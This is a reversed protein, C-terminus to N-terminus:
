SLAYMNGPLTRIRGSLELEFLLNTLQAIDQGTQKALVNIHLPSQARLCAVLRATEPSDDFALEAQTAQPASDTQWGLAEILDAASSVLGAHQHRILENCGVSYIDTARGPFAFVERNYSLAVGATVLSGGKRASEVVLTADSLGAIIRNRKLFNPRDPNTQSPFDTLLGGQSLMEIATQRHAPPYLRDLGHALVGVTPLHNRLASRHACVDIGYALGSVILTDPFAESIGEMLQAVADQGYRTAHRTGVVSLIHRANLDATGKYYLLLPADPCERLRFPYAEEEIYLCQIQNKEIFALEQEARRMVEPQQIETALLEGIGPVRELRQKKEQFIAEASGFANLLQRALIGGVGNIMTLAIPYLLNM